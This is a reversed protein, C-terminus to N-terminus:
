PHRKTIITQMYEPRRYGFCRQFIDAVTQDVGFAGVVVDADTTGRNTIIKFSSNNKEIQEVTAMDLCGGCEIAQRMMYDDFMIRRVAYSAGFLEDLIISNQRAHLVYGLIYKQILQEPFKINLKETLIHYIPPSLVGICPNIRADYYPTGSPNFSAAAAAFDKSEHITVRLDIKQRHSLKMLAIACATGAPGGGIISVRASLGLKRVRPPTIHCTCSQNDNQGPLIEDASRCVFSRCHKGATMFRTLRKIVGRLRRAMVRGLHLAMELIFLPQMIRFFIHRYPRNGTFMDWLIDDHERAITPRIIESRVQIFLKMLPPWSTILNHAWLIRRGFFNDHIIERRIRPFYERRFDRRSIGYRVAVAAAIGSSRM